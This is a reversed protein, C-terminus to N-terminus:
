IISVSPERLLATTRWQDEHSQLSQITRSHQQNTTGGHSDSPLTFHFMDKLNGVQVNNYSSLVFM